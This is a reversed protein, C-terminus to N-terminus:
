VVGTSPDPDPEWDVGYMNGTYGAGPPPEVPREYGHWWPHAHREEGDRFNDFIAKWKGVLEQLKKECAPEEAFCWPKNFDAMIQKEHGRDWDRFAKVHKDEHRFSRRVNHKWRQFERSGSDYMHTAIQVKTHVEVRRLKTGYEEQRCGLRPCECGGFFKIWARTRGGIGFGITRVVEVGHHVHKLGMPDVMVTPNSMAYEYIGRFAYRSLMPDRGGFRGVRPDYQRYRYYMLDSSPNRERGTFTYRQEVTVSTGPSHAGGFPLYDYNNAISGSSDTLTRVSGLGDQSYYHTASDKTISLNQDLFPTVYFADVSSGIDALVNDGDYLFSM